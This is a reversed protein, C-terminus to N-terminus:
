ILLLFKAVTFLAKMILRSYFPDTAVQYAWAGYSYTSYLMQGWDWLKMVPSKEKLGALTGSLVAQLKKPSVGKSEPSRVLTVAVFEAIAEIVSDDSVIVYSGSLTETEVTKEEARPIVTWFDVSDLDVMGVENQDDRHKIFITDTTLTSLFEPSEIHKQLRACLDQTGSATSLSKSLEQVTKSDGGFVELRKHFRALTDLLLENEAKIKALEAATDKAPEQKVEVATSSSLSSPSSSASSSSSPQSQSSVSLSSSSSSSPSQAMSTPESSLTASNSPSHPLFIPALPPPLAENPSVTNNPEAPSITAFYNRVITTPETKKMIISSEEKADESSSHM